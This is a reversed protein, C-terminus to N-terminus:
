NRTFRGLLACIELEAIAFYTLEDACGGFDGFVIVIVHEVPRGAMCAALDGEPIASGTLNKTNCPTM